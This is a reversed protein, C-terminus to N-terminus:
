IDKRRRIIGVDEFQNVVGLKLKRGHFFIEPIFLRGNVTALKGPGNAPNLFKMFRDVPQFAPM